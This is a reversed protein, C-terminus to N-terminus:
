AWKGGRRAAHPVVVRFGKFGILLPKTPDITGVYARGRDLDDDAGPDDGIPGMTEGSPSRGGPSPDSAGLPRGTDAPRSM